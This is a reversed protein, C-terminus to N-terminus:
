SHAENNQERDRVQQVETASFYDPKDLILADIEEALDPITRACADLGNSIWGDEEGEWSADYNDHVARWYGYSYEIKWRPYRTTICEYELCYGAGGGRPLRASCTHCRDVLSM